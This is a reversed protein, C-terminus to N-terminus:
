HCITIIVMKIIYINTSWFRNTYFEVDISLCILTYMIFMYIIQYISINYAVTYMYILTYM